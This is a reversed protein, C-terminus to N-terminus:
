RNYEARNRFNKILRIADNAELVVLDLKDLFLLCALKNVYIAINELSTAKKTIKLCKDYSELAEVFKKQRLFGDAEEKYKAFMVTDLKATINKLLNRAEGNQPELILCKDLDAKALEWQQTM